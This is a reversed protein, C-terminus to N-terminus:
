GGGFGVVVGSLERRDLVGEGREGGGASALDFEIQDGLVAPAEGELKERGGDGTLVARQHERDAAVEGLAAREFLGEVADLGVEAEDGLVGGVDDPQEVDGAQTEEVHAGGDERHAAEGRLRGAGLRQAVREAGFGVAEHEFVELPADGRENTAIGGFPDVGVLEAQAMLVPVDDGGLDDGGQEGVGGAAGVADDADGAVERLAVPRDLGQAFAFGAVAGEELHLGVREEEDVVPRALDELGVVGGGQEVATGVVFQDAQAVGVQAGLGVGGALRHQVLGGLDGHAVVAPGVAGHKGDLDDGVMEGPRAAGDVEGGDAVDGLAQAPLFLDPVGREPGLAEQADGLGALLGVLRKEVAGEGLREGDGLAAIAVDVVVVLPELAEGEVGPRLIHHGLAVDHVRLGAVLEVAGADPALGHALAARDHEVVEGGGVRQLFTIGLAVDREGAEEGDRDEVALADDGDHADGVFGGVVVVAVDHLELQEHARDPTRKLVAAGLAADAFM